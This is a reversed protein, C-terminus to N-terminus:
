AAGGFTINRQASLGYPLLLERLNAEERAVFDDGDMFRTLMAAYRRRDKSRCIHLAQGELELAVWPMGNEPSGFELEVVVGRSCLEAM